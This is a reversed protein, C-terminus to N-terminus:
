LDTLTELFLVIKQEEAFTLGLNGLESTNKTVPVEPAAWGLDMDRTNYFHVIDYLTPFYGNHGYPATKKVNRLSSVKFKGAESAVVQQGDLLVLDGESGSAKYAVNLIAVQAGLGYDINQSGALVAIRPNVPIGLNDYSFDTFVSEAETAINSPVPHCASCSGGGGAVNPDNDAVTNFLALGEIEKKTYVKSSFLSANDVTITSVDIGKNLQERRFSDFKSSFKNLTRSQEFASIALAINNYAVLVGQEDNVIDANFAKGIIM